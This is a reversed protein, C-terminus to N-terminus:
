RAWARLAAKDLREAGAHDLLLGAWDVVDRLTLARWSRCDPPGPNGSRADTGGPADGTHDPTGVGSAARYRLCLADVADAPLPADLNVTKAHRMAETLRRQLTRSTAALDDARSATEMILDDDAARFAIVTDLAAALGANAATVEGIHRDQEAITAAQDNITAAQWSIVGGVVACAAIVAIIIGTKLMM